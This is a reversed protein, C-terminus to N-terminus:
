LQRRIRVLPRLLACVLLPAPAPGDHLPFRHLVDAVVLSEFGQGDLEATCTQERDIRFRGAVVAIM